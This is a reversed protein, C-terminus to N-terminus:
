KKRFAFCICKLTSFKSRREDYIKRNVETCDSIQLYGAKGMAESVWKVGKINESGLGMIYVTDIGETFNKQARQFHAKFGYQKRTELKAVLVVGVRLYRSKFLLPPEMKTDKKYKELEAIHYLFNLFRKTDDYISVTPVRTALRDGLVAFERFLVSTMLGKNDIAELREGYELIKPNEKIAPKLCKNLFYRHTEDSRGFTIKKATTLKCAEYLDSDIYIKSDPFFAESMYLMLAEIFNRNQDLGYGLRIIVEGEEIRIEKKDEKIWQIKIGFPLVKSGFADDETQKAFLNLRSQLDTSIYNRRPVAGLWRFAKLIGSILKELTEYYTIGLIIFFLITAGVGGLVGVLWEPM